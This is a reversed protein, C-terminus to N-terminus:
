YSWKYPFDQIILSETPLITTIFGRINTDGLHISNKKPSKTLIDSDGVQNITVHPKLRNYGSLLIKCLWTPQLEVLVM